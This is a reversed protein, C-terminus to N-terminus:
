KRGRAIRRFAPRPDIVSGQYFDTLSKMAALAIAPDHGDPLQYSDIGCRRMYNLVDEHVEGIARLEGSFGYRTRLLVALSLGRGDNIAAFRIAILSIKKLLPVIEEPEADGALWVGVERNSAFLTDAHLVAYAAPVISRPAVVDDTIEDRLTWDDSVVKGDKILTPM